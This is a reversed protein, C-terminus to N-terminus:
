QTGSNLDRHSYTMFINYCEDSIQSTKWIDPSYFNEVINSHSLQFQSCNKSYLKSICWGFVRTTSDGSQILIVLISNEWWGSNRKHFDCSSSRSVCSLSFLYDTFWNRRLLTFYFGILWKFSEFHANLSFSLPGIKHQNLPVQLTVQFYKTFSWDRIWLLIWPSFRLFSICVDETMDISDLGLKRRDECLLDKQRQLLKILDENSM